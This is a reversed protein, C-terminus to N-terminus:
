EEREYYPVCIYSGAHLDNGNIRNIKEVETIYARKDTYGVGMERDAISWLTDGAMIEVSKYGKVYGSSSEANTNYTSYTLGAIVAITIGAIVLILILIRRLM